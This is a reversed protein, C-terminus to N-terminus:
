VGREEKEPPAPAPPPPATPPTGQGDWVKALDNQIMYEGVDITEFLVRGLARGYKDLKESVITVESGVPLVETLFRLAEKGKVTNKEPANIGWVRVREKKYLKWGLDLTVDITDGDVVREVRAPVKWTTV